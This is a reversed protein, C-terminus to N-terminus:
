LKFTQYPMNNGFLKSNIEFNNREEVTFTNTHLREHHFRCLPVQKRNIAAMQTQFWNKTKKNTRSDKRIDRVKRIHHMEINQTSGCVICSYDLKSTTLKNAWSKYISHLGIEAKVQFRNPGKIRALTDPMYYETGSVTCRLTKGFRKIVAKASSLRYKNMLTYICSFYLFHKCIQGLKSRNTALTYYNLIGRNIMNFYSVIDKHSMNIIWTVRKPVINGHRTIQGFGRTVLRDLIEKIPANMVIRPTTRTINGRKTRVYKSATIGRIEKIDVGLYRINKSSHKLSSKDHNIEFDLEEKLFKKIANYVIEATNKDAIVGVIFDDAYRVYHIRVYNPDHMDKSPLLRAKKNIEKIQAKTLNKARKSNTLKVYELNRRREEGKNYRAKLSDIFTDLEHLYVNCLLPSLVSGEPTGLDGRTALGNTSIHGATILSKILAITKDCKIKRRLIEILKKQNITSFCKSIDISIMWKVGKFKTDVYKLASHTGKGPRFGHSYELFHPEYLPEIAMQMAKQIVRERPSTISLKRIKGEKKPIEVIRAPSFKFKGRQLLESASDISFKNYGDLTENTHGKTLSSSKSKNLNYALELVNINSITKIVAINITKSDAKNIEIIHNLLDSLSSTKNLRLANKEQEGEIETYKKIIESHDLIPVGNGHEKRLKPLGTTVSIKDDNIDSEQKRDNKDFTGNKKFISYYKVSASLTNLSGKVTTQSHNLFGPLNTPLILNRM